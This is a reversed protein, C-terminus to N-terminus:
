PRIYSSERNGNTRDNNKLGVFICYFDTRRALHPIEQGFRPPSTYAFGAYRQCITRSIGSESVLGKAFFNLISTQGCPRERRNAGYNAHKERFTMLRIRREIEDLDRRSRICITFDWPGERLTFILHRDSAFDADISFGGAKDLDKDMVVHNYFAMSLLKQEALPRTFYLILSLRFLKRIYRTVDLTSIDYSNMEAIVADRIREAEERIVYGM